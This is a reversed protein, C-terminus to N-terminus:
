WIVGLRKRGSPTLIVIWVLQQYHRQLVELKGRTSTVSVGAESKLLPINKKKKGKTRRGEFAWFKEMLIQIQKRSM